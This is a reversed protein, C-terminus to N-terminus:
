AGKLQNVQQLYCSHNPIGIGAPVPKAIEDRVEKEEVGLRAELHRSDV